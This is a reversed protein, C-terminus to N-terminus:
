RHPASLVVRWNQSKAQPHLPPPVEEDSADQATVPLRARDGHPVLDLHTGGHEASAFRNAAYYYGKPTPGNM